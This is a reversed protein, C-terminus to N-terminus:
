RCGVGLWAMLGGFPKLSKLLPNRLPPPKPSWFGKGKPGLAGYAESVVLVRSAGIFDGTWSGFVVLIERGVVVGSFGVLTGAWFVFLIGRGVVVGFNFDMLKGHM